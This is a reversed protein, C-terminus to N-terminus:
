NIITIRDISYIINENYVTYNNFVDEFSKYHYKRNAYITPYIVVENELQEIIYELSYLKFKVKHHEDFVKKLTEYTM